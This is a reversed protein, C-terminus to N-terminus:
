QKFKIVGCTAEINLSDLMLSRGREDCEETALKKSTYSIYSLYVTDTRVEVEDGAENFEFSRKKYDCQCEYRRTCSFVLLGSVALLLFSVKKM